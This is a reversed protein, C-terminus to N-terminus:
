TIGPIGTVASMLTPFRVTSLYMRPITIGIPRSAIRSGHRTASGIECHPALRMPTMPIQQAFARNAVIAGLGVWRKM